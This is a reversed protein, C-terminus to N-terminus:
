AAPEQPPEEDEDDEGPKKAFAADMGALRAERDQKREQEPDPLAEIEKEIKAKMDESLDPLFEAAM